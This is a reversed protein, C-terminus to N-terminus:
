GEFVRKVKQGMKGPLGAASPKDIAHVKFSGEQDASVTITGPTLTISNAMATISLDHRLETRFTILHPDILDMMRPHFIIALLHINAKFVQIMLWPWYGVFRIAYGIYAWKPYPFILTHCMAAVIFCSVLGLGILLR